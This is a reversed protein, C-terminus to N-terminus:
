SPEGRGKLRAWLSRSEESLRPVARDVAAVLSDPEEAVELLSRIDWADKPGGAHLKLLVLGVPEVVPMEVEGLSRTVAAEIVERQWVFRGVVVDVVEQASALRISGALPDEFDGKLVRVTAGRAEFDAWLARHLVRGEVVLIDVDATARSIGHVALAAAGILAHPVAERRLRVVTDLLLSM